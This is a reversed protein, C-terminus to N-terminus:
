QFLYHFESQAVHKSDIGQINEHKREGWEGSGLSNKSRKPTHIMIQEGEERMRELVEVVRENKTGGYLHISDPVDAFLLLLVSTSSPSFIIVVCDAGPVVVFDHYHM